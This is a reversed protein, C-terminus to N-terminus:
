ESLILMPKGCIRVAYLFEKGGDKIKLRKQLEKSSEPYNRSIININKGKLQKLNKDSPKFIEKIRLIRGPFEQYYNASIYINTNADLKYMGEFHHTLDAMSGLKMVSSDPMYIWEDVTPLKDTIVEPMPNKPAIYHQINGDSLINVAEFIPATKQENDVIALIEKCEGKRSVAIINRVGPLERATQTIDLMPSAKIIIRNCHQLLSPLLVSVDPECECLAYTRKNSDGRRAPDIFIVDAQIDSLSKTSDCPPMVSVNELQLVMANHVLASNTETNREFLTIQKCKRAITFADIGLGATLDVVTENPKVFSAHFNAVAEDSAQESSLVSPYFFLENANFSSLKLKTRKRCEIQIVASELSFPLVKNNWKLLLSAIDADKNNKVFKWFDNSKM